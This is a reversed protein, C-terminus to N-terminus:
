KDKKKKSQYIFKQDVLNQYYFDSPTSMLFNLLQEPVGPKRKEEYIPVVLRFSSHLLVRRIEDFRFHEKWYGEETKINFCKYVFESFKKSFKTMVEDNNEYQTFFDQCNDFDRYGLIQSVFYPVLFDIVKQNWQKVRTFYGFCFMFRTVIYVTVLVEASVFHILLSGIIVCFFTLESKRKNKWLLINKFKEAYDVGTHLYIPIKGSVYVANNIKDRLSTTDKVKARINKIDLYFDKSQQRETTLRPSIYYKHLKVDNIFYAELFNDAKPKIGPHNYAIIGLLLAVVLVNFSFLCNTLLCLALVVTTFLPYKFSLFQSLQNLYHSRYALFRKVRFVAMKTENVTKKLGQSMYRSEHYNYPLETNLAELYNNLRRVFIGHFDLEKVKIKYNFDLDLITFTELLYSKKPTKISYVTFVNIIPIIIRKNVGSHKLSLKLIDSNIYIIKENNDVAIKGQTELEEFTLVFNGMVNLPDPLLETNVISSERKILQVCLNFLFSVKESAQIVFEFDCLNAENRIKVTTEDTEDDDTYLISDVKLLVFLDSFDLKDTLYNREEVYMFICMESFHLFRTVFENELSIRFKVKYVESKTRKIELQKLLHEYLLLRAYNTSMERGPAMFIDIFLKKIPDTSVVSPTQGKSSKRISSKPLGDDGLSEEVHAYASEKAEVNEETDVPVTTVNSIREKTVNSTREKGAISKDIAKDNGDEIQQYKDYSKTKFIFAYLFELLISRKQKYEEKAFNIIKVLNEHHDNTIPFNNFFQKISKYLKKLDDTHKALVLSRLEAGNDLSLVVYKSFYSKRIDIVDITTNLFNDRFSEFTTDMKTNYLDFFM